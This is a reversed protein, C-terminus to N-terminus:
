LKASIDNLLIRCFSRSAKQLGEFLKYKTMLYFLDLFAVLSIMMGLMVVLFCFYIAKVFIGVAKMKEGRYHEVFVNVYKVGNTLSASSTFEIQKKADGHM